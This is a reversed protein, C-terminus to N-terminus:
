PKFVMVRPKGKEQFFSEGTLHWQGQSRRTQPWNFSELAAPAPLYAVCFAKLARNGRLWRAPGCFVFWSHKRALIAPVHDVQSPALNSCLFWPLIGGQLNFHLNRDSRASQPFLVYVAAPLRFNTSSRQYWVKPHPTPAHLTQFFSQGSAASDAVVSGSTKAPAPTPPVTGTKQIKKRATHGQSGYNRQIETVESLVLSRHFRGWPTTRLSSIINTFIGLM